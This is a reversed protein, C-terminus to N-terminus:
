GRSAPHSLTSSSVFIIKQSWLMTVRSTSRIADECEMEVLTTIENLLKAGSHDTKFAAREERGATLQHTRSHTCIRRLRSLAMWLIVFSTFLNKVDASV